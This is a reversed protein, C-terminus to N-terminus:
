NQLRSPLIYTFRTFHFLLRPICNPSSKEVEWTAFLKMSIVKQEDQVSSNRNKDAMNKEGYKM